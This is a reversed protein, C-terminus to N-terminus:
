LCPLCTEETKQLDMDIEKEQSSILTSDEKRFNITLFYDTFYNNLYIINGM